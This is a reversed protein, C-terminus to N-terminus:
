LDIVEGGDEEAVSPLETTEGGALKAEVLERLAAAYRDEYTDPDFEASLSDVLSGAMKRESSKLEVETNLIDFEPERVEDPWLMTQLVIAKGRVRLLAMSERQRLAVTVVAARDTQELADRLLMYPKVARAEPELYY